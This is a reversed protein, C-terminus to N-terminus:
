QLDVLRMWIEAHTNMARKIICNLIFSIQWPIFIKDNMQHMQGSLCFRLCNCFTILMKWSFVHTEDSRPLKIKPAPISKLRKNKIIGLAVRILRVLYFVDGAYWIYVMMLRQYSCQYNRLNLICKEQWDGLAVCLGIIGFLPM